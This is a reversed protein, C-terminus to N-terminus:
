EGSKLEESVNIDKIFFRGAITGIMGAIFVLAIAIILKDPQLEIVYDKKWYEMHNRIIYTAAVCYLGLIFLAMLLAKIMNVLKEVFFIGVIDNKTYGMSMKLAFEWKRHKVENISSLSINIVSICLLMISILNGVQVVYKFYGQVSEDLKIMQNFFVGSEDYIDELVNQVNYDEAIYLATHESLSAEFNPEEGMEILMQNVEEEAAKEEEYIFKDWEILLQMNTFCSCEMKRARINDYTGIVKFEYEKKTHGESTEFVMKVTKGILSDGDGCHKTDYIGVDYLYRPMIIEDKDPAKREGKYDYDLVADFFGWMNVKAKDVYLIEETDQWEITKQYAFQTIERIREDGSYKAMFEEKQKEDIFSGTAVRGYLRNGVEKIGSNISNVHSNVGIYIVLSLFILVMSIRNSKKQQKLDQLGCLFIDKIKCM